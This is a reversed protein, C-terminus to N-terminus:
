PVHPAALVARAARRLAPDRTRQKGVDIHVTEELMPSEGAAALCETGVDDIVGIVEDDEALVRRSLSQRPRLRHHRLEPQREVPRFGRHLISSRLAEVEESVREAGMAVLPGAVPVEACTWGRFTDLTHLQLDVLHQHGAIHLWPRFYAM